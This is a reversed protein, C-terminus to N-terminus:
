IEKILEKIIQIDNSQTDLVLGDCIDYIEKINSNEILGGYYVEIDINYKKTFYAKIFEVVKTISKIDKDAESLAHSPVYAIRLYKLSSTEMSKLYYNLEKKVFSVDKKLRNDEGICLITNFGYSLSKYLKEKILDKTEFMIKKREFHGLLTYTIGMDKLSELNVEGTFSGTKVSFFNSTGVSHKYDKFLSLYQISPFLVFELDKRNIKELDKKFDVVEDYLLYSKQNLIIKKM